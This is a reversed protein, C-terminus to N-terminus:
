HVLKCEYIKYLMLTRNQKQVLPIQNFNGRCIELIVQPSLSSVICRDVDDDGSHIIQKPDLCAWSEVGFVLKKCKENKLEGTKIYMSFSQFMSTQQQQKLV